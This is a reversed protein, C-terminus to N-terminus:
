SGTPEPEVSPADAIRRWVQKLRPRALVILAALFALPTIFAAAVIFLAAMGILLEGATKFAARIPSHADFGPILAGSAYSFNMPTNALADKKDEGARVNEERTARLSSLRTLLESRAESTLKGKQLESEIRAIEQSAEEAGRRASSIAVSVDDGGIETEVVMGEAKEVAAIGTKGFARAIEPALKFSLEAEISDKGLVRYRLGTIRCRAVGLKECAQAHHEQVDAIRNGPLRFQYSYSFAVGPAATPSINPGASSQRQEMEASEHSSPDDPTASCSAAFLILPLCVILHARM